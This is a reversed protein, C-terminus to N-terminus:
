YLVHSIITIEGIYARRTVRRTSHSVNIKVSFGAPWATRGVSEREVCGHLLLRYLRNSFDAPFTVPRTVGCRPSQNMERYLPM